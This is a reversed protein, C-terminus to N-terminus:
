IEIVISKVLKCLIYWFFWSGLMSFGCLINYPSLISDRTYDWIGTGQPPTSGIYKDWMVVVLFSLGIYPIIGIINVLEFLIIKKM